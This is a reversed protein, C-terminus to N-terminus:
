IMKKNKIDMLLDDVSSDTNLRHTLLGQMAARLVAQRLEKALVM